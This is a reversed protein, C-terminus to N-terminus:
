ESGDQRGLRGELIFRRVDEASPKTAEIHDVMPYFPELNPNEQRYTNETEPDFQRGAASIDRQSAQGDAATAQNQRGGQTLAFPEVTQNGRMWGTRTEGQGPLTTVRIWRGRIEEVRVTTGHPLAAALRGLVSPKDKLSLGDKPLVARVDGVAVGEPAASLVGYAGALVAVGLVVLLIRKRM